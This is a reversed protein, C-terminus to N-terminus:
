RVPAVARRAVAADGARRYHPELRGFVRMSTQMLPGIALAFVITGVGVSGGLLWGTACVVVEVITRARRVPVGAIRSVGLAFGDRPGAGLGATIYLGTAVGNLVLGTAFLAAGDWPGSASPFGPVSLFLDVWVGVLTMNLVTGIGPRVGATVISLLLLTFGAAIMAQGVTLPTRLALGQHFVDWPGLGVHARLMLSISVGFVMLGLNLHAFRLLLVRWSNPRRLSSRM